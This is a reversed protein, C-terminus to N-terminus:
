APAPLSVKVQTGRSPESHIEIEGDHLEVLRRALAFGLGVGPQEYLARDFQMYAGLSKIQQISMGRGYDRIEIVFRQTDEHSGAHVVVPAGPASFKFANDILEGVIKTLNECAIPLMGPAATVSLDVQRNFKDACSYAVDRIIAEANVLDHNRLKASERPDNAILEAQAFVLYNEVLRELRTSADLIHNAFERAQHSDPDTTLLQAFGMIQHLPTHMEHPLAHVINRVLADLKLEQTQMLRERKKFQAHVAAVLVEVDVPKRLYDDAGLVMGQRM